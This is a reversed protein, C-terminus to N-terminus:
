STSTQRVVPPARGYQGLLKSTLVQFLYDRETPDLPREMHCSDLGARSSQKAIAFDMHMTPVNKAGMPFAEPLNGRSYLQLHFYGALDSTLNTFSTFLGGALADLTDYGDSLFRTEYRHLHEDDYPEASPGNAGDFVFGYGSRYGRGDFGQEAWVCYRLATPGDLISPPTM